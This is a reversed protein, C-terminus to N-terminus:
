RPPTDGDGAPAREAALHAPPMGARWRGVMRVFLHQLERTYSECDFLPLELRHQQLHQRYPQLLEPELALARLALSYDAVSSFALDGLGAAHLVSSAVRSAYSQGQLTLVPVGAWLADSATTHANYPWTDVFLDALALRSFHKDYHLNPAFVVREPAVGRALAERLLNTHLQQNTQKLWLVAQPVERLVSCWVDFAAPLIKYTHNFACIVFADDPLGAEARTMAAPLPRWRGNPQMCGPLLALKESFHSAHELPTVIPDGVLYDIYPAGTSAAFGLYSVQVPAPRRAFVGMRHGRTHGALDVLVQIGDARIHEAALQDSMGRLDFFHDAAAQVRRRLPSGDDLGASYLFLEFRKRDIQELTQVLLQSVPHERFDSSVFGLKIPRDATEAPGLREPLQQVDHSLVLSEGRAAILLEEPSLPLSLLGFTAAVLPRNPPVAALTEKVRALDEDLGSWDGVHRKEFSMHSLAELNGPELELVTKICEVAERRLGMDRLSDALLAHGRVLHPTVSLARLLVESAAGPQRLAQLMGAHQLMATTEVHGTAELAEFAQVADAYRHLKALCEGLLHLGLADNPARELGQRVSEVAKEYQHVHRQANALNFWFNATGPQALTAQGFALVAQEWLGASAYQRGQDWFREAAEAADDDFAQAQLAGTALAGRDAAHVQSLPLAAHM